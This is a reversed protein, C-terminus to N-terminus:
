EPPQLPLIAQVQSTATLQSWVVASWGPHRLFLSWRLFFVVINKSSHPPKAIGVSQSALTPPDSSGLFEITQVVYHSGM